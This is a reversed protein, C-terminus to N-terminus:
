NKIIGTNIIRFLLPPNYRNKVASLDGDTNKFTRFPIPWSIGHINSVFPVDAENKLLAFALLSLGPTLGALKSPYRYIVPAARRDDTTGSSCSGGM